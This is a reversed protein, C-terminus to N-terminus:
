QLVIKKTAVGRETKIYLSYVGKPLAGLNLEVPINKAYRVLAHTMLEKGMQDYLTLSIWNFPMSFTVTVRDHAPNPFVICSGAVLESVQSALTRFMTIVLHDDAACGKDNTM